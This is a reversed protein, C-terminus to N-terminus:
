LSPQRDHVDVRMHTFTTTLTGSANNTIQCIGFRADTTKRIPQAAIGQFASGRQNQFRMREGAVFTGTYCQFSKPPWFAFGLVDDTSAAANFPYITEYTPDIASNTQFGLSGGSFAKLISFNQDKPASVYELFVKGGEAVADANTLTMRVLVRLVNVTVDFLPLVTSVPLTLNPATRVNAGEYYGTNAPSAVMVIGVGPVIDCSTLNANNGWLWVLGDITKNGDGGTRINQGALATFDVEYGKRWLPGSRFTM